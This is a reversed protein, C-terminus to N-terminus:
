CQIIVLMDVRLVLFTGIAALAQVIISKVLHLILVTLLLEIHYKIYIM